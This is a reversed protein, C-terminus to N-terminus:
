ANLHAKENETAACAVRFKENELFISAVGHFDCRCRDTRCKCPDECAYDHGYQPGVKFEKSMWSLNQFLANTFDSLFETIPLKLLFAFRSTKM